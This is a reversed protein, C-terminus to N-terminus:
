HTFIPKTLSRSKMAEEYRGVEMLLKLGCVSSALTM